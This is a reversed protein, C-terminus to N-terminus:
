WSRAMARARAGPDDGAGALKGPARRDREGRHSARSSATSIAPMAGHSLCEFPDPRLRAFALCAAVEAETEFTGHDEGTELEIVTYQPPWVSLAHREPARANSRYACPPCRAAGAAYVECDTCLGRARRRACRKRSVASRREPSVRETELAACRGCRSSGDFAPLACRVRETARRATRCPECVSRDDPPRHRGCRTCLGAEHRARRRRGDGARDGRRRKPTNRESPPVGSRAAAGACRSAPSTRFRAAARAGDM